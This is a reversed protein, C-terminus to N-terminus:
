LLQSNELLLYVQMVIKVILWSVLENTMYLMNNM